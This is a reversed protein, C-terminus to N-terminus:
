EREDDRGARCLPRKARARIFSLLENVASDAGWKADAVALRESFPAPNLFLQRYASRVAAISDRAFGRRKMGVINVGFMRAPIGQALGFPIV